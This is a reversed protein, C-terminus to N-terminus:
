ERTGAVMGEGGTVSRSPVGGSGGGEPSVLVLIEAEDSNMQGVLDGIMNVAVEDWKEGGAITVGAPSPHVM